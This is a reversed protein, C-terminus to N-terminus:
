CHALHLTYACSLGLPRCYLRDTPSVVSSQARNDGSRFWRFALPRIHVIITSLM